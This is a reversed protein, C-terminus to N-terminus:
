PAFTWLLAARHPSAVPMPIMNAHRGEHRTVARGAVIGVFAGAVADSLFHRDMTVRSTSVYAALAYAPLAHFWGFRRELVTATAFTLAAHGSPLSRNDSLDPRERRTAFKLGQVLGETLLQARILELGATEFRTRHTVRGFVYTATALGVQVGTEGVVRGTVFTNHLAGEQARDLEVMARDDAPHAALAAGAGVTSWILADRSILAVADHLIERPVAKISPDAPADVEQARLPSSSLLAAVIVAHTALWRM